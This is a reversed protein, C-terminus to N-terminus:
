LSVPQWGLITTKSSEELFAYLYFFGTEFSYMSFVWTRSYETFQAQQAIKSHKWFKYSIRMLFIKAKVELGFLSKQIESFTGNKRSSSHLSYTDNM